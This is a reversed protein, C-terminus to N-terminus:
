SDRCEWCLYDDPPAVGDCGGCSSAVLDEVNVNAVNGGTERTGGNMMVLCRSNQLISLVECPMNLKWFEHGISRNDDIFHQRSAGRLYAIDGTNVVAPEVSITM